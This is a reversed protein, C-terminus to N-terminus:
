NIVISKTIEVSDDAYIAEFIEMTPVRPITDEADAEPVEGHTVYYRFDVCALRQSACKSHQPCARCPPQGASLVAEGLRAPWNSM